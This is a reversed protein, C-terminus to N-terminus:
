EVPGGGSLGNAKEALKRESEDLISKRMHIRKPTVEVYEDSNLFEISEELSLKIPPAVRLSRDAGAARMNSLKKLRQANVVLDDDRKHEGIVQGRYLREGPEVFFQGRDQLGDLAYGATEGDAMSIISGTQRGPISGKFYEYQLFRHNLVIDGSTARLMRSRLGILGRSPVHFEIRTRAEGREMHTMTGRRGGVDEIVTGALDSAVDVTLIEIPEAKKGNIEKFIVRPQGVMCEYGERRMTELLISLHLIGRGSVKLTDARGTEEVRLAM